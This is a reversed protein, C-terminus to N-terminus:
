YGGHYGKTNGTTNERPVGGGLTTGGTIVTANGRPLGGVRLIWTTTGRPVTLM